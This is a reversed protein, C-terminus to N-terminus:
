DKGGTGVRRSASTMEAVVKGAPDHITFRGERRDATPFAWSGAASGDAASLRMAAAAADWTGAFEATGGDAGFFWVRHLKAAPDYGALWYDNTGSPGGTHTVEVLRGGLVPRGREITTVKRDKADPALTKLTTENVWEGVLRDLAAREPPRDAAAPLDRPVAAAKQRTFTNRLEFVIENKDNQHFLRAKVTDADVFEFRHVSQLGDPLKEMWLLTRADADWVGPAPGSAKGDSMYFWGRLADKPEDHTQVLLTQFPHADETGVGRLYKGDGVLDLVVTGGGRGPGAAPAPVVVESATRWTGVWFPLIDAARRPVPVRVDALRVKARAVDADIPHLDAAALVGGKVRAAAVARRTEHRDIILGLLRVADPAPAGDLRAEFVGVEAEALEARTVLGADLRAKM